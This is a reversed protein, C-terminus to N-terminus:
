IHLHRSLLTLFSFFCLHSLKPKRYFAGLAVEHTCLHSQPPLSGTLLLYACYALFFVERGEVVARTLIRHATHPLSIHRSRSKGLMWGADGRTFILAMRMWGIVTIHSFLAIGVEGCGGKLYNYLAILDGRLRRKEQSFLGLERLQEGYCKHELGRLLKMARRQVHKLIETVKMYQPAWHRNTSALVPPFCCKRMTTFSNFNGEQHWSIHAILSHTDCSSVTNKDLQEDGPRSTPFPGCSNSCWWRKLHM